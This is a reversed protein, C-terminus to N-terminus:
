SRRDRSLKYPIGRQLGLAKLGCPQRCSTHHLGTQNAPGVISPSCLATSKWFSINMGSARQLAIRYTQRFSPSFMKLFLAASRLLTAQFHLFLLGSHVCVSHMSGQSM